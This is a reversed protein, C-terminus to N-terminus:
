DASVFIPRPYFDLAYPIIRAKKRNMNYNVFVEIADGQKPKIRGRYSIGFANFSLGTAGQGYFLPTSDPFSSIEMTVDVDFPYAGTSDMLTLKGSGQPSGLREYRIALPPVPDHGMLTKFTLVWDSDQGPAQIEDFTEAATYSM